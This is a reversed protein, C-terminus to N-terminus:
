GVRARLKSRRDAMIKTYCESCVRRKQKTGPLIRFTSEPKSHQGHFCYKLTVSQYILTQEAEFEPEPEPAPTEAVPAPKLLLEQVPTEITASPAAAPRQPKPNAPRAVKRAAAKTAKNGAKAVKTSKATRTPKGAKSAKPTRVPAVKAPRSGAATKKRAPASSTAAKKAAPKRATAKRSATRSSTAVKLDSSCM